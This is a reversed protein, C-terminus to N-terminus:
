RQADEGIRDVVDDRNGLIGDPGASQLTAIGNTYRYVLPRGWSDNTLHVGAYPGKWGSTGTDQFLAGLQPPFVGCDTRYRAVGSLLGAVIIQTARSSTNEDSETFQVNFVMTLITCMAVMLVSALFLLRRNRKFWLKRIDREATM